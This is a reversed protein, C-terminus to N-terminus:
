SIVFVNKLLIGIFTSLILAIRNELFLKLM